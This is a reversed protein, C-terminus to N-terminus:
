GSPTPTTPTMTEARRLAELEVRVALAPHPAIRAAIVKGNAITVVAIASAKKVEIGM